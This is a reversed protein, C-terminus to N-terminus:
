QGSQLTKFVQVKLKQQCRAKQHKANDANTYGLDNAIKTMSHNLYWFRKLLEYCKSSLTRMSSLVDQLIKSKEDIGEEIEDYWDTLTDLYDEELDFKQVLKKGEKKLRLLVQNRCISNLYTQITCTLEFEPKILKEFLVIVADHYIDKIEESNDYMSRMFNLCYEKHRYYIVELADREGHKLKEIIDRQSFEEDDIKGVIRM